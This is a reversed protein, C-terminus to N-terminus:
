TIVCVKMSPYFTICTEDRLTPIQSCHSVLSCGPSNKACPSPSHSAPAAPAPSFYLTYDLLM